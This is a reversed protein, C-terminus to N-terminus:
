TDEGLWGRRVMWKTAELVPLVTFALGFVIATDPIWDFASPRVLAWACAGRLRRTFDLSPKM